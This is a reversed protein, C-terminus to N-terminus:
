ADDTDAVTVGVGCRSEMSGIDRRYHCGQFEINSAADYMSKVASALTRGYAAVVLVRGSSSHYNCNSLRTGAHFVVVDNRQEARELGGIVMDTRPAGPYGESALVVCASAGAKWRPAFSQLNGDACLSLVEALDFDARLMIAETEPDGLRCNFELVKPGQPTLMLGFYLFGRYPRGEAALGRITPKVVKEQIEKELPNDLLESCSYAGMGGTNPGKDGDFARKHDRTPALPWWHEGDTIVIYSLEQGNLGEELLIRCGADGFERKEMVGHIFQKAEAPSAAVLVGKGACLGDAKIVLPWAVHQLNAHIDVASDHIGYVSATPIRHRAMFQKAFVKSAEIEAGARTPGVIRLGRAAFEDAIGLVLPLEPGVITLDARIRAALDALGCVDTTDAALCEAHRSIGGNGPACWIREVQPSQRLKWV